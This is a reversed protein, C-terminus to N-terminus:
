RPFRQLRLSNVVVSLSSLTMAASALMPSLSWGFSPFLAGAAIPIAILNYLFAWALNQRIVRSAAAALDMAELVGRLDGRTLTVDALAASVNSGSALAIAFDAAALAPADNVGDGVMAVRQGRSRRAELRARKDEPRVRSEVQDIGLAGAVRGAPEPADGTLLVVEIGRGHLAAVLESAEPRLEDALGFVAVAQGDVAVWVPSLGERALHVAHARLPSTYIGHSSLFAETGARVAMGEVTGAIGAGPETRVSEPLALCIGRGKAEEILAKAVPHESGLELSAALRLVAQEDASPAIARRTVSMQGRTLTGTKDFVVTDISGARELAQVNRLLLGRHAARGSAVAFAMPVAIGLACPCAIVLVSIAPALAPALGAGPPTFALWLLFTLVSIAVIAPVFLRSIRDVLRQIAARSSQAVMVAEVLRAGASDKALATVRATIFGMGNLTGGHLADGPSKPVPMSEGTLLSEDLESSGTLVTADAPVREGPRVAVSDGPRLESAAVAQEKGDLLRHADNPSLAQLSRLALTANGRARLELYRGVLVLAMVAAAAEFYLPLAGGHHGQSATALWGPALTAVTSYAYAAGAGLSVLVNMDASRRRLARAAGAWYPWGAYFVVPTTLILQAVKSGPFTLGHAMGMLVVPVALVVATWMRAWLADRESQEIDIADARASGPKVRYGLDEILRDLAAPDAGPRVGVTARGLAFNVAASTVAPHAGLARSITAACSACSMGEIALEVRTSAAPTNM